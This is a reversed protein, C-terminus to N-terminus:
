VDTLVVVDHDVSDEGCLSFYESVIPHEYCLHGPVYFIICEVPVIM